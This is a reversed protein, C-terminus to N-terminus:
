EPLTNPSPGLIKELMKKSDSKAIMFIGSALILAFFITTPIVTSWQITTSDSKSLEETVINKLEGSGFSFNILAHILAPILVNETRVMLGSFFVGISLAFFVQSTIGIFNEPQSFLNVFHVVGFLSSSAIAGLLIPKKFNKFAKICLPFIAGRFILEEVIGVAIVSISFLIITQFNTNLYTLWNSYLGGIIFLLPILIAHTNRYRFVSNLSTFDLFKLIKIGRIILYILISRIFIASIYKASSVDINISLFERLPKELWLISLFGIFIFAAISLEKRM